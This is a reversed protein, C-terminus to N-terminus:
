DSVQKLAEQMGFPPQCHLLLEENATSLWTQCQQLTDQHSVHKQLERDLSQYVQHLCLCVLVLSFILWTLPLHFRSYFLASCFLTSCLLAAYRTVIASVCQASSCIASYSDRTGQDHAKVQQSTKAQMQDTTCSSVLDDGKEKLSTLREEFSAIEEM